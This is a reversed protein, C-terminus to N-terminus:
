KEERVEIYGVDVQRSRNTYRVVAVKGREKWMIAYDTSNAESVNPICGFFTAYTLLGELTPESTVTTTWMRSFKLLTPEVPFFTIRYFRYLSM